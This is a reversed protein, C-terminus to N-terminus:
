PRVADLSFSLPVFPAGPTQTWYGHGDPALVGSARWPIRDGEELRRIQLGAGIAANLIRGLGHAWVGTQRATIPASPDAYDSQDEGIVPMDSQYPYRVELPSAPSLHPADDLMLMAPHGDLLFLRGGPKLAGAAVAMWRDLDSIWCIAGWSAFVIDFGELGPPPHLVDALIFEGPVDTERSLARAAEIAPPSYDLGTVEAGLRALSLTDLGFHCQLHLLRKGSVEGLGRLAVPDIVAAGRRFAATPYFSSALHIAVAENWYAFNEDAVGAM